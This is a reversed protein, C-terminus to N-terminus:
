LKKKVVQANFLFIGSSQLLLHYWDVKKRRAFFINKFCFSFCITLFSYFSYFVLVMVTNQVKLFIQKKLVMVDYFYGTDTM